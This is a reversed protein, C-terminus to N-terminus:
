ENAPRKSPARCLRTYPLYQGLLAKCPPPTSSHTVVLLSSLSHGMKHDLVHHFRVKGCCLGSYIKAHTWIISFFDLRHSLYHHVVDITCFCYYVQQFLYIFTQGVWPEEWRCVEVHGRNLTDPVTFKLATPETGARSSPLRTLEMGHEHESLKFTRDGKIWPLCSGKMVRHYIRRRNAPTPKSGSSCLFCHHTKTTPQNTDRM